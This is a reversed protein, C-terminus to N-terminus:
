PKVGNLRAVEALTRSIAARVCRAFVDQNIGFSLAEQCFSGAWDDIDFGEREPMVVAVPAPLEAYLSQVQEKEDDWDMVVVASTTVHGTTVNRWAVPEGRHQAVLEIPPSERDLKCGNDCGGCAGCSQKDLLAHLEEKAIRYSRDSPHVSVITQLLEREVSLMRKNTM